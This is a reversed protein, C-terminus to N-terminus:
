RRLSARQAVTTAIAVGGVGVVGVGVVWLVGAALDDMRSFHLWQLMLWAFSGGSTSPPQVMVALEIEHFSLLGAALGAAGIAGWQPVMAARFWGIVSGGADLERLDRLVRSETAALWWGAAVAILGFRAIHGLIVVLPSDGVWALGPRAWAHATAIGVLVGPMLGSVLM